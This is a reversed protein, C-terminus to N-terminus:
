KKLIPFAYIYNDKYGDDFTISVTHHPIKKKDRILDALAELPLVNYHNRKLFHMQRKFTGISVALRNEPQPNPTLSHYMLIPACYQKQIFGIVFFIFVLIISFLAILKKRKPM